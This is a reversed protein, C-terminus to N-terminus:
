AFRTASGDSLNFRIIGNSGAPESGTTMDTAYVYSQLLDIGGYSGNNVTSWGSYGQQSWTAASYTALAPTFTGNYVYIKGTSDQILDRATDGSTGPPAPINVTRVLGGAANFEKFVQQPFASTTSVLINGSLVLRDELVEVKPRWRRSARSANNRTLLSRLWKM